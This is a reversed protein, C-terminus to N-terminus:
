LNINHNSANNILENSSIKSKVRREPQLQQVSETSRRPMEKSHYDRKVVEVRPGQRM